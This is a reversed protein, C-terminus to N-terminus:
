PTRAHEQFFEKLPPAMNEPINEGWADGGIFEGTSLGAADILYIIPIWEINFGADKMQQDTWVDVDVYIIYTGQFADVMWENQEKLSDRLAVCAPCWTATFEVYPTLGLAAAKEAHLTLLDALTGNNPSVGVTVYGIFPTPTRTRTPSPQPSHTPQPTQTPASTSTPPQPTASPPLDTQTPAAASPPPTEQAPTGSRCAFAALSLLFLIVIGQIAPRPHSKM